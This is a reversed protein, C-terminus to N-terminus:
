PADGGKQHPLTAFGGWSGGEGPKPAPREGGCGEVHVEPKLREEVVREDLGALDDSERDEDPEGPRRPDPRPLRERVEDAMPRERGSSPGWAPRSLSRFPDCRCLVPNAHFQWEQGGRVERRDAFRKLLRGLMGCPPLFKAATAEDDSLGLPRSDFTALM